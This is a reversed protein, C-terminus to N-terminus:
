LSANRSRSDQTLIPSLATRARGKHSNEKIAALELFYNKEADLFLMSDQWAQSRPKLRELLWKRILSIEM